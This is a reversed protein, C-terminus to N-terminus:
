PLTHVHAASGSNSPMTPDFTLHPTHCHRLAASLEHLRREEVTVGGGGLASPCRYESMEHVPINVAPLSTEKM